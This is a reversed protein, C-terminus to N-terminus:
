FDLVLKKLNSLEAFPSQLIKLAEDNVDTLSGFNLGLSELKTYSQILTKIPTIDNINTCEELSLEFNKLDCLKQLENSLKKLSDNNFPECWDISLDLSKLNTLKGLGEALHSVDQNWRKLNLTLVKLCNYRALAEFSNQISQLSNNNNSTHSIVSFKLKEIKKMTKLVGELYQMGNESIRNCWDFNVAFTKLHGLKKLQRTWNNMAEDLIANCVIFRMELNQLASCKGIGQILERVGHNTINEGGQFIIRLGRLSTMMRISFALALMTNNGLKPCKRFHISFKRVNKVKCLDRCVRVSVREDGQEDLYLNLCSKKAASRFAGFM